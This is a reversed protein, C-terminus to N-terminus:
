IIPNHQPLHKIILPNCTKQAFLSVASNFFLAFFSDISQLFRKMDHTYKKSRLHLSKKLQLPSYFTKFFNKDHEDKLLFTM